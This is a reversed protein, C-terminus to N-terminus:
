KIIKGKTSLIFKMFEKGTRNGYEGSKKNWWARAPHPARYINIGDFASANKGRSSQFTSYAKVSIFFIITPKIVETIKVLTDYATKNDKATNKITISNGYSPRQFYNYISFYDFVPETVSMGAYEALVKKLNLYIDKGKLNEGDTIDQIIERPNFYRIFAKRLDASKLEYFDDQKLISLKAKGSEPQHEFDSVDVYHSEAVILIRENQRDWHQGIHPLKEPLNCFHELVLLREDYKTMKRQKM